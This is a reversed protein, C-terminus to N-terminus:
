RSWRGRFPVVAEEVVQEPVLPLQRLARRAGVLPPRGVPSRVVLDGIGMVRRFSVRRHHQGGVERQSEIRGVLRDRAAEVFVGVLEGVGEGPSPELQRVAVHSGDCPVQTGLDRGLLEDPLVRDRGDVM